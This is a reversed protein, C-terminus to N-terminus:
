KAEFLGDGLPEVGLMKYLRIGLIKKAKKFTFTHGQAIRLRFHHNTVLLSRESCLSRFRPDVAL